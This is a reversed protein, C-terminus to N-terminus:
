TGSKLLFMLGDFVINSICTHKVSPSLRIDIGEPFCIGRWFHESRLLVPM